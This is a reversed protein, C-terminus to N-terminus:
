CRDDWAPYALKVERVIGVAELPLKNRTVTETYTRRRWADNADGASM